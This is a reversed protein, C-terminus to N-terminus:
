HYPSWRSRCAYSRRCRWIHILSLAAICHRRSQCTSTVYGIYLTRTSGLRMSSEYKGMVERCVTLLRMRWMSVRDEKILGVSYFFLPIDVSMKHRTKRIKVSGTGYVNTHTFQRFLSATDRKWTDANKVTIITVNNKSRIWSSHLTNHCAHRHIQKRMNIEFVVHM